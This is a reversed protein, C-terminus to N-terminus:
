KGAELQSAVFQELEGGRLEKQLITGKSDVVITYPISRVGITRAAANDWGKLDSMQPWKIGLADTAKVWQSRNNDLSIGVIGLGRNKYKGYMEVMMPMEQRCPGCWSAWFDIVTIKNHGIEQMLDVNKGDIGPMTFNDIKQGVAYKATKEVQAIVKKVANRQRFKEPLRAILKMLAEDEIIEDTYYTLIFYGLENDINREACDIVAKKFVGNLREMEAAKAKQEEASLRSGYLETAIRNIRMGIKVITDNLEQWGDNVTTGSTKATQPNGTLKLKITGPEIFFPINVENRRSSYLMVFKVSDTESEYSFKGDKIVLTDFPVGNVMDDTLYLTDGDVLGEATGEIRYSKSQCATTTLIIALLCLFFSKKMFIPSISFKAKGNLM